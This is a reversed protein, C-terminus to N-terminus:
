REGGDQNRVDGIVRAPSGVVIAHAPVSKTVVAGAGVMAEEGIELGCLVVAGSGISARRRVLTREMKWDDDGKVSGDVNTSRPLRDNTFIVGHGVFVEDEITV